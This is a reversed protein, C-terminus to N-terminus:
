CVGGAAGARGFPFARDGHVFVDGGRRDVPEAGVEALEFDEGGGVGVVDGAAFEGGAHVEAGGGDAPVEGQEPLEAPPADAVVDELEDAGEPGDETGLPLPRDDDDAGAFEGVGQQAVVAEPHAAEVEEGGEVDVGLLDASLETVHGDLREFFEFGDDFAGTGADGDEGDGGLGCLGEGVAQDGGADLSQQVEGGGGEDRGGADVDGVGVDGGVEFLEGEM